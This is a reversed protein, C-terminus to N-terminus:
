RPPPNTASAVDSECWQRWIDRFATEMNRAFRPADMLPSQQLRGRLTARLKGLRDVDAALASAIRVFEDPSNAALETLKLNNLQSWGARSAATQGVLTVVPVGMWYSDLSTTHGNYPFTDLCIDIEHYNQLYELRPKVESFSIREPAISLQAFRDQLTQRHEGPQSLVVLRSNPVAAMVRAWLEITSTTVKCFNNLCGFTVHGSAIAPPPRLTQDEVLADYCWFTDALRYSKEAYWADHEGPPDLYPDTLRWDMASLGTTGPYALWAVQIPAPKRAFLLPRGRGMHMTLDVLIDVGDAWVQAAVQADTLGHTPRWRDVLKRTRWTFQDSHEVRAYCYVEFAAHDHHTLLPITFLSQCHERFDSGVYGIKLRREPDRQNPWPGAFRQVKASHAEDWRRNAQLIAPGDYAPHFQVTYALNSHCLADNPELKLAQEFHAISDDLNGADKLANGLDVHARELDPQLELAHRYCAIAEDLRRLDKLTSGLGCHSLAFDPRMEIAHRYAAEAEDLRLLQHLVAALNYHYLFRDPELEIARRFCQYAEELRGLDKLASGLNSIGIAYDPKARIVTRYAVIAQEVKGQRLLRNGHDLLAAFDIPPAHQGKALGALEDVVRRVVAGWDFFQPQRFLRMTPYWPSDDRELLWRWDCAFPLLVWVPRGLAGALHAISTDATIVLDLNMIVAATDTLDVLREALNVHPLPLPGAAHRGVPPKQLSYFTISAQQQVQAFAALEGPPISRERDHQHEPNGAWVIGVRLGTKPGLAERWRETAAAPVRIYPVEAPVSDLTTRFAWPLSMMPFHFDYDRVVQGRPVVRSVEPVMALLKAINPNCVVVVKAGQAAVLPAYRAFQITDGLGQEDVLAITRGNLPEGKWRLHPFPLSGTPLHHRVEYQRWGREFDGRTLWLEALGQRSDLRDPELALAREFHYASEDLRNYNRLAVALNHHANPHEPGAELGFRFAALGEDYRRSKWLQIGITIHAAPSKANALTESLMQAGPHKPQDALFEDCLAQAEDWRHAAYCAIARALLPALPAESPQVAALNSENTATM